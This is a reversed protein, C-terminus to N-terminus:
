FIQRSCFCMLSIVLFIMKVTGGPGLFSPFLTWPRILSDANLADGRGEGKSAPHGRLGALFDPSRQLNGWRLGSGLGPRFRVHHVTFCHCLWQRCDSETNHLARKVALRSFNLM